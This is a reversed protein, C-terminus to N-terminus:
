VRGAIVLQQRKTDSESDELTTMTTIKAPAVGARRIERRTKSDKWSSQEGAYFVQHMAICVCPIITWGLGAWGLMVVTGYYRRLGCVYGVFRGGFRYADVFFKEFGESFEVHAQMCLKSGRFGSM